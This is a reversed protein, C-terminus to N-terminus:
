GLLGTCRAWHETLRMGEDLRFVPEYGLLERAKDIRVRPKIALYRVLWPRLPVLPLEDESSDRAEQPGPEHAPAVLLKRLAREALRRAAAGERTALLRGRLARSERVARLAEPLLWPTRRSRRWLALAEAESLSVTRQVGLMREFSAFFELWTPYEPGSVLFREGPARDSTAALLLATVVDDVYAANCVGTGGEVVLMRSTRLEEIIESGHVDAYPGYVVTPQIVVVPVGHHAGLELALREGALKADSYADGKQADPAHETLDGDRPLDYVAMTSVHVVRAGARRAVEVVHRVGDVDVARRLAADPGKGKACNFIVDCGDAAEAVARPGLIDGVVVEVPYRALRAASMVRRVLVRVRAGREVHLREALRGGLFGGAGIVLVNAGALDRPAGIPGDERGVCVSGPLGM